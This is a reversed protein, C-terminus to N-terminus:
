VLRGEASSLAKVGPAAVAGDFFGEVQTLLRGARLTEYVFSGVALDLVGLGFPSFVCARDPPRKARGCLVDDLTGNVFGRHGVRQEALHVSTRERLCHEVDDVFNSSALIVEPSLDRLSINLVLPRHSFWGPHTLHPTSAVTALVILDCSTVLPEASPDLVTTVDSSTGSVRDLFAIARNKDTDFAHVQEFQWGTGALYEWITTGIPGTGIFGVRSPRSGSASLADAALVAMGATRAASILSGELCAMPFGTEMDNLILVATARPLGRGVNQPWSSVWKIGAIGPLAAPLAIIRSTPHSPMTLFSSPPNVGLGEGLVQYARRVVDVVEAHRGALVEAVDSAPIVRLPPVEGNDSERM